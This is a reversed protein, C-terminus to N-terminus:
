RKAWVDDFVVLFALMDDYDVHLAGEGSPFMHVLDVILVSFFVLEKLTARGSVPGNFDM